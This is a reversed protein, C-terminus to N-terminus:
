KIEKRWYLGTWDVIHMTSLIGNAARFDEIAQRCNPLSFDDVIIFGGPSVKSYLQDLVQITSSYMDGDLRLIALENIDVTKLSHEFWGKVFIVNEDLLNYRRFNNQVEEMSVELMPIKQAGTDAWYKSDPAPLGEFSDAVFVKRKKSSYREYADVLAKMYICAGGRWVGTEILDGPINDGIVVEFCERINHLRKKRFMTHARLPWYTGNEIEAPTAAEEPRVVNHSGYINDLLTDELLSLYRDLNTM